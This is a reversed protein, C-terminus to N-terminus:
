RLFLLQRSPDVFNRVWPHSTQIRSSDCSTPFFKLGYSHYNDGRHYIFKSLSNIYGEEILGLTNFELAKYLSSAVADAIQLNKSQSKNLAKFSKITNPRITNGPLRTVDNLYAELEEYSTNRRHEFILNCKGKNDDVLWTVREILYRTYYRYLAEKERLFNEKLDPKYVAIYVCRFLGHECITKIVYKKQEHNLDAFHLPKLKNRFKLNDKITNICKSLSLDNTERVILAGLVFWKSSVWVGDKTTFGEDGSEDIYVNFTHPKTSM